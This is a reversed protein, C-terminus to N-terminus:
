TCSMNGGLDCQVPAQHHSCSDASVHLTNSLYILTLVHIVNYQVSLQILRQRSIVQRNMEGRNGFCCKMRQFNGPMAGLLLM